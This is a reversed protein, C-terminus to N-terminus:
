QNKMIKGWDRIACDTTHVTDTLPKIKKYIDYSWDMFPINEHRNHM